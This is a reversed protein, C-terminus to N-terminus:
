VCDMNGIMVDDQVPRSPEVRSSVRLTGAFGTRTSEAAKKAQRLAHFFVLMLMALIFSDNARSPTSAACNCSRPSSRQLWHVVISFKLIASPNCRSFRFFKSARKLFYNQSFHFKCHYLPCSFINTPLYGMEHDHSQIASHRVFEKAGLSMPHAALPGRRFEFCIADKIVILIVWVLWLIVTRAFVLLWYARRYTDATPALFLNKVTSCLRLVSRFCDGSRIIMLDVGLQVCIRTSYHNLDMRPWM